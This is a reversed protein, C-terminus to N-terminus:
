LNYKRICNYYLLFYFFFCRNNKILRFMSLLIELLRPLPSYFLIKALLGVSDNIVIKTLEGGMEELVNSLLEHTQPRITPVDNLRWEIAAAEYNGIAIELSRDGDIERLEIQQYQRTEAIIIRSLEVQVFM